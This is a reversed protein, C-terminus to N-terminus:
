QGCGPLGCEPERFDASTIALEPVPVRWCGGGPSDRERRVRGASGGARARESDRHGARTPGASIRWVRSATRQRPAPRDRHCADEEEGATSTRWRPPLRNNPRRPRRIATSGPSSRVVAARRACNRLRVRRRRLGGGWAATSPSRASPAAADPLHQSRERLWAILQPRYPHQDLLRTRCGIGCPVWPLLPTHTAHM